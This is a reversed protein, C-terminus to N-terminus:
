RCPVQGPRRVLCGSRRRGTMVTGLGAVGASGGPWSLSRSCRSAASPTRRCSTAPCIRVAPSQSLHRRAAARSCPSLQAFTSSIEERTASAVTTLPYWAHCASPLCTLRSSFPM